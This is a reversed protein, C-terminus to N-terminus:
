KGFNFLVLILRLSNQVSNPNQSVSRPIKFKKDGLGFFFMVGFLVAWDGRQYFSFPHIGGGLAGGM